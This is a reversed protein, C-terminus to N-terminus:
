LIYWIAMFTVVFSYFIVLNEVGRDELTYGFQFKQNQFYAIQCGQTVTRCGYFRFSIASEKRIKEVTERAFSNKIDQCRGAPGPYRWLERNARM